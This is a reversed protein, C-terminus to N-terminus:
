QVCGCWAGGYGSGSGCVQAFWSPAARGPGTGIKGYMMARRLPALLPQLVLFVAAASLWLSMILAEVACSARLADSYGVWAAEM